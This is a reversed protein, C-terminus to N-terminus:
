RCAPCYQCRKCCPTDRNNARCNRGDCRRQTPKPTECDPCRCPRRPTPGGGGGGVMVAPQHRPIVVRPEEARAVAVAEVVRGGGGGVKQAPAELGNDRAWNEGYLTSMCGNCYPVRDDEQPKSCGDCAKAPRQRAQAEALQRTAEALQRRLDRVEDDRADCRAERVRCERVTKENEERFRRHTDTAIRSHEDRMTNIRKRYKDLRQHLEVPDTNGSPARCMPCIVDNPCEGIQYRDPSPRSTIDGRQLQGLCPTCVEHGCMLRSWSEADNGLCCCCDDHAQPAVAQLDTTQVVTAEVAPQVVVAVAQGRCDWCIVQDGELVCRDNDYIDRQCRRCAEIPLRIPMGGSASGGGLITEPEEGAVGATVSMNHRAFIEDLAVQRRRTECDGCLGYNNGEAVRGRCANLDDTQGNRCIGAQPVAREAERQRKVERAHQIRALTDLHYALCPACRDEEPSATFWLCHTPMHDGPDAHRCTRRNSNTNSNM